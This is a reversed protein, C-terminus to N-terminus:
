GATVLTISNSLMSGLGEIWAPAPSDPRVALYVVAVLFVIFIVDPIRLKKM